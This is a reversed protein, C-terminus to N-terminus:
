LRRDSFAVIFSEQRESGIIRLPHKGWKQLRSLAANNLRHEIAADCNHHLLCFCMM